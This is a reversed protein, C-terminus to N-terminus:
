SGGSVPGPSRLPITGTMDHTTSSVRLVLVLKLCLFLLLALAFFAVSVRVIPVERRMWGRFRESPEGHPSIGSGGSAAAGVRAALQELIPALGQGGYVAYQGQFGLCLCLYYVELVHTKHPHGQLMAMRRFFGEGATNEGFYRLQFSQGLWQARYPWSSRLIQEDTFAAIAYQAERSDEDPIGSERCRRVMDEFLADVRRQLVDPSALDRASALESALCLPDACAWYMSALFQPNM